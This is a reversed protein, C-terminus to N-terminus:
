TRPNTSTPIQNYDDDPLSLVAKIAEHVGRQIAQRHELSTGKKMHVHIIPM